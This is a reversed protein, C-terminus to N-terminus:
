AAPSTRGSARPARRRGGPGAAPAGPAAAPKARRSSSPRSCRTTHRTRTACSRSRSDGRPRPARPVASSPCRPCSPACPADRRTQLIMAASAPALPFGASGARAVRPGDSASGRTGPVPIGASPRRRTPRPRWRCSATGSASSKTATSASAPTGPTTNASTVRPGCASTRPPAGTRTRCRVHGLRLRPWRPTACARAAPMSSTSSSRCASSAPPVTPTSSRNSPKSLPSGRPCPRPRLDERRAERELPPDRPRPEGHRPRRPGHARMARRRYGLPESTSHPARERGQRASRAGPAPAVRCPRRAGTPDM